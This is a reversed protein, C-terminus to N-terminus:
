DHQHGDPSHAQHIFDEWWRTQPISDGYVTTQGVIPTAARLGAADAAARLRQMPEYWPHLALSLTGWHIPHLVDGGLDLHAQVSEEPFMHIHRWRENYAGCEIFTMHFPGYRRGIEGFGDFYGSDGSIYVRHNPGAVVWSTWLTKNRDTLGRGSFHQAPTSVITLDGNIPLEQWWDLERIKTRPIGWDALRAGVGLAVIFLPTKENLKEISSKNLHDYHDHSILVADVHPLHEIELPVDGNYRSPGLISVRKAFVPDSLLRFGDVNLMLSSHGLWTVNLQNNEERLFASLDVTQRPLANEPTREQGGFLVDPLLKLGQWASLSQWEVANRFTGDSYQPSQAWRARQAPNGHKMWASCATYFVIVALGFFFFITRKSM